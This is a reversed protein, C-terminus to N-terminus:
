VTHSNHVMCVDNVNTDVVDANRTLLEPLDSLRSCIILVATRCSRGRYLLEHLKHNTKVGVMSRGDFVIVSAPVENGLLTQTEQKM